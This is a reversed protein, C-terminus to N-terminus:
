TFRYDRATEILAQVNVVPTGFCLPPGCCSLFGGGGGASEIQQIVERKVEEVSGHLLTTEASVNGFLAMRKGLDAKIRGVDLVYGKRSEDILLAQAGTEGIHHAIPAMNGWFNMIPVLGMRGIEGYFERELPFLLQRYTNPSLLDAGFYSVSHAYGHAGYEKVARAFVLQRSYMGELLYAFMGPNDVLQTMGTYFGLIGDADLLDHVPGETELFIFHEEGYRDALIRLHDFKGQRGLEPQDEYVLDLLEDIVPRSELARVAALLGRHRPDNIIRKKSEFLAEALHLYDPQVFDQFRIPTTPYSELL